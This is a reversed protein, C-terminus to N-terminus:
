PTPATASLADVACILAPGTKGGINMGGPFEVNVADVLRGLASRLQEGHGRLRIADQEAHSARSAYRDREDCVAIAIGHFKECRAEWERAFRLLTYDIPEMAIKMASELADTEPTTSM